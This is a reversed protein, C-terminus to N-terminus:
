ACQRRAHRGGLVLCRLRFTCSNAHLPQRVSVGGFQCAVLTQFGAKPYAHCEPRRRLHEAPITALAGPCGIYTSRRLLIARDAARRRSAPPCIRRQGPNLRRIHRTAGEDLQPTQVLAAGTGSRRSCFFGVFLTALALLGYDDPTLLRIVVITILWTVVQGLLRTGGTWYLGRLIEHRLNMSQKSVLLRDDTATGALAGLFKKVRWPVITM